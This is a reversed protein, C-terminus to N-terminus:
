YCKKLQMTDQNSYSLSTADAILRSLSILKDAIGNLYIIFLLPGLVLSQPVGVFIECYARLIIKIGVKHQRGKLYSNFWNILNGTIAYAKM